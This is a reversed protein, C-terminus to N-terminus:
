PPEPCIGDCDTPTELCPEFVGLVSKCCTNGSLIITVTAKGQVRGIFVADPDEPDPNAAVHLIEIDVDEVVGGCCDLVSPVAIYVAYHEPWPPGESYPAPSQITASYTACDYQLGLTDVTAPFGSESWDIPSAEASSWPTIYDMAIPGRSQWAAAADGDSFDISTVEWEVTATMDTSMCCTVGCNQCDVPVFGSCTACDAYATAAAAAIVTGPCTNVDGAFYYCTGSYKFAGPFTAADAATMWADALADNSCLRAQGYCCASAADNIKWKDSIVWVGNSIVWKPM